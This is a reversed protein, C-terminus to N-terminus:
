CADRKIKNIKRKIRETYAAVINSLLPLASSKEDDRVGVETCLETRSKKDKPMAAESVLVSATYLYGNWELYERVLENVLLVEESPTPPTTEAGATQQRQLLETVQARVEANIKNLYGNKKLLDKIATLLEKETIAKENM